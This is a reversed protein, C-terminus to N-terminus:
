ATPPAPPTYEAAIGKLRDRLTTLQDVDAQTLQNGNDGVRTLLDAIDAAIEDTTTNIDALATALEDRLSMLDRRQQFLRWEHIALVLVIAALTTWM